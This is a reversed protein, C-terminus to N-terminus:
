STFIESFWRFGIMNTNMPYSESLIWTGPNWDNRLTKQMIKYQGFLGDGACPNFCKQNNYTSMISYWIDIITKMLRMIASFLSPFVFNRSDIIAVLFRSRENPLTPPGGNTNSIKSYPYPSLTYSVFFTIADRHKPIRYSLPFTTLWPKCQYTKSGPFPIWHTQIDCIWLARLLISANCCSSKVGILLVHAHLICSM